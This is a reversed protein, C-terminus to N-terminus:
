TPQPFNWPKNPHGEHSQRQFPQLEQHLRGREIGANQMMRYHAYRGLAAAILPDTFNKATLMLLATVFLLSFALVFEGSREHTSQASIERILLYLPILLMGALTLFGILGLDVWASMINHVYTGAGGYAAYSGYDGLFPHEGISRLGDAFLSERAQWSSDNSLDLLYITRNQPFLIKLQEIFFTLSALVPLALVLAVLKHRSYVLEVVLAMIGLSLLESRASNLFLAPVCVAYLFLRLLTSRTFAIAVLATVFFSRAFGQYSSLSESDRISTEQKLYFWGDSSLHFIIGAMALLTILTIWRLTRAEFDAMKFVLFIVAFQYIAMLHEQIVDIDAHHAYNFGVIVIFYLLYVGFFGDMSTFFTPDEMLKGAYVLAIFPLLGLAIWSFYGGLFANIWGIGLATHYFFYGPFLALFAIYAFSSHCTTSRPMM